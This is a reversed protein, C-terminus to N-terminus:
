RPHPETRVPLRHLARRADNRIVSLFGFFTWVVGLVALVQGILFTTHYFDMRATAYSVRREESTFPELVDGTGAGLEEFGRDNPDAKPTDAAALIQSYQQTKQWGVVWNSAGLVILALGFMIRWDRYVDPIKM